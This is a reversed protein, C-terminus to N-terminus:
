PFSKEGSSAPSRVIRDRGLRKAEYLAQDAHELLQKGPLAPATGIQHILGASCGIQVRGEATVFSIERIAKSMREIVGHFDREDDGLVIVVFEDGGYRFIHDYPRSSLRLARAVASLVEDGVQHGLRDNVEKFNDLDLLALSFSTAERERRRVEEALFEDLDIRNRLGTLGDVRAERRAKDLKAKALLRAGVRAILEARCIPKKIYDVAGVSFADVLQDQDESGTLFVVPIDATAPEAQLKRCLSLGDEDPMQIDLLILDPSERMALLWGSAADTASIIEGVSEELHFIVLDHILSDDDILLVSGSKIHQAM